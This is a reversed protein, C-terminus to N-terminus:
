PMSVVHQKGTSGPTEGTYQRYIAIFHSCDSFGVAYCAETVSIGKILLSKAHNIKLGLLYRHATVPMYQQFMRSLYSETIFFKQAIERNSTIRLYNEDQHIYQLITWLLHPMQKIKKEQMGDQEIQRDIQMILQLVALVLPLYATPTCKEATNEIMQMQKMPNESLVAVSCSAELLNRLSSQYDAAMEYLRPAIHLRMRHYTNGTNTYAYHKVHPSTIVVGGFPLDIIREETVYQIPDGLNLYIEYMDHEHITGQPHIPLISEKELRDYTLESFFHRIIKEIENKTCICGM